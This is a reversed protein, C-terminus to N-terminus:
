RSECRPTDATARQQRKLALVRAEGGKHGSAYAALSRPLDSRGGRQYDRAVIEGVSDGEGGQVTVLYEFVLESLTKLNISARRGVKSFLWESFAFFADFPTSGCALLLPRSEVFNGSNAVLDWYRAFRGMQQLEKFSVDKTKLVEYPPEDSFRMLYEDDHRKIPTGRLRKLIGVQIEHPNLAIIDNFGRGFSEITEGPLGVILDIHLYATTEGRLYAINEKLKPVDQRRSINASVEPNLTQVGIELQLSGPPFKAVVERLQTPFRDPVMEFHVFLGPGMRELFFNLITLSTRMNLNFTRDVFKFTRAGRKYLEDLEALVQMHDFQRVPIDISSLCFECTFPCGRSVEVYIVRHAIDRDTYYKYPLAIETLAPLGSHIVKDAPREGAVLAQCLERFAVDAEGTILYDALAVIPQEEYEFSVEPGGIVVITEPKVKKLLSIVERTKVVNWIYVGFGVIKPDAELISEVVERAPQSAEFEMISCSSQLENLNAYLYRLGVSAHIFKANLTSLVISGMLEYHRKYGNPIGAGQESKRISCPGYV